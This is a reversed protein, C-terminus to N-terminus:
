LLQLVDVCDDRVALTLVSFQQADQFVCLEEVFVVKEGLFRQIM